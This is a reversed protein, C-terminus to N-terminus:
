YVLEGSIFQKTIEHEPDNFFKDTDCSEILQSKYLLSVQRALRKAQFVNHTVMIVTSKFHAVYDAIMDEIIKVNAPDLNSTPEDLLLVEPQFVLARALSVRQAEGGSLKDARQNKLKTLGLPEIIDSVESEDFSQNRIKLPYIINNWVSTTMLYPRQFVTTVKRRLALGPLHDKNYVENLFTITGTDTAEVFNLLRLLTSKGAGSPGVLGMIQGRPIMLDDIKLVTTDGYTKSINQLRYTIQSTLTKTM